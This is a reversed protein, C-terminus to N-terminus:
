LELTWPSFISRRIPHDIVNTPIYTNTLMLPENTKISLVIWELVQIAQEKSSSDGKLNVLVNLIEQGIRSL